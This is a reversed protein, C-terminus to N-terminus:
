VATSVSCPGPDEYIFTGLCSRIIDDPWRRDVEERFRIM